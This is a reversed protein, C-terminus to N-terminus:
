AEVPEFDRAAPPVGAAISWIVRRVAAAEGRLRLWYEIIPGTGLPHQRAIARQERTLARRVREEV